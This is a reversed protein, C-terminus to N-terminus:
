EPLRALFSPRAPLKADPARLYVPKPAQGLSCPYAERAVYLAFARADPIDDVDLGRTILEGDLEPLLDAGSGVLQVRKSRERLMESAEEPALAAALSVPELNSDFVQFYVQGRRADIAVAIDGDGNSKNFAAVAIAQLSTIGALPRNLALALGRAASLGIRLGTFGGPGVTVALRDLDTYSLGGDKLVEDIMPLLAEAHGKTMKEFRGSLVKGGDAIAVSCASLATDLVLCKM